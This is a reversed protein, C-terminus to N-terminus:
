EAGGTAKAILRRAAVKDEHLTFGNGPQEILEILFELLEPAAAILRANAAQESFDIVGDLILYMPSLKAFVKCKGNEVTTIGLENGAVWPGPTHKAHKM